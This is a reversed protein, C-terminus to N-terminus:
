PACHLSETPPTAIERWRTCAPAALWSAILGKARTNQRGSAAKASPITIGDTAYGAVTVMRRDVRASGAEALPLRAGPSQFAIQRRPCWNRMPRAAAWARWDDFFGGGSQKRRQCYRNRGSITCLGVRYEVRPNQRQKPNPIQKAGAVSPATPFAQIGTAQIPIPM